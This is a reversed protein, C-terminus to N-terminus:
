DNALLGYARTVQAIRIEYDAYWHERGLQQALRHEAVNRWAVIAEESEWYSITIGVGDPGRTSEADIFGPQRAALEVMRAAMDAYADDDSATRRSTFIAAFYPPAPTRAIAPDRPPM